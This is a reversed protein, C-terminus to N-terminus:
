PADYACRVGIRDDSAAPDVELRSWVRLETALESRWSGGKAIGRDPADAAPAVWEAVNGAVDHLGSDTDGDAHAGVTDPGDGDFACPGRALGFAARRCVAGTDGWPYRRGRPGAAAVLWEDETPLRGGQAACYAAATARSLGRAARLADATPRGAVAEETAEFADIWLPGAEVTRPSVRGEAEWDSPGIAISAAHIRM